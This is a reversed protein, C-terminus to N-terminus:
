REVDYREDCVEVGEDFGLVGGDLGEEVEGWVVWVDGEAEPANLDLM